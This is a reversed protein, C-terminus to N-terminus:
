AKQAIIYFGHIAAPDRKVILKGAAKNHQWAVFDDPTATYIVAYYGNGLDYVEDVAYDAFYYMYADDSGYPMSVKGDIIEFYEWFEASHEKDFLGKVAATYEELLVTIHGYGEGGPDDYIAPNTSILQNKAACNMIWGIEISNIHTDGIAPKIWGIEDAHEFSTIGMSWSNLNDLLVILSNIDTSSLTVLEGVADTTPVEDIPVDPLDPSPTVPEPPTPPPTPLPSPPPSPAAEEVPKTLEDLMATIATNGPLEDLGQKLVAIASSTDSMGIYSEAAGTYARANRPEVEIVNLFQVLAQEYNLDLLYKEGLDLLEAVSLEKQPEQLINLLLAIVGGIVVAIAIILAAIKLVKSNNAWKRALGGNPETHPMVGQNPVARYYVQGSVEEQKAGCSPCYVGVDVIEKGCNYCYV